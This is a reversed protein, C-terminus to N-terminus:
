DYFYKQVGDFIDVTALTEAIRQAAHGDGFLTSSPFRGHVLHSRIAQAIDIQRASVELVNEARERRQQRTGVIIAPTGLFASERIFSSSNGVAVSANALVKTYDELSIHKHFVSRSAASSSRYERMAISIGDSGADINPSIFFQPMGIEDLAALLEEMQAHNSDYETTVPHHAILLYPKTLDISGVDRPYREHLSNDITIDMSALADIIPSGYSFVTKPDEGMRIIREASKKTAPFHIHALKSIAHRISNDITGSVDGGEIHAIPINLYAAAIAVSLIEFRDGNILIIDPKLQEFISPMKLLGLGCTSVMEAPTGGGVLLPVRANISYGDRILARSLDERAYVAADGGFVKALRARIYWRLSNRHSMSRAVKLYKLIGDFYAYSGIVIQLRVDKRAHLEDLVPKLRGYDSRNTAVICITRM